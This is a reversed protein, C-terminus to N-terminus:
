THTPQVKRSALHLCAVFFERLLLEDDRNQTAAAARVVLSLKYM